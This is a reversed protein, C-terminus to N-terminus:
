LSVPEEATTPDPHLLGLYQVWLTALICLFGGQAVCSQKGSPVVVSSSQQIRSVTDPAEVLFGSSAPFNTEYPMQYNM